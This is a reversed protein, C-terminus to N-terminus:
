QRATCGSYALQEAANLGKATLAVSGHRATAPFIAYDFGSVPQDFDLSIFGLEALDNVAVPDPAFDDPGALLIADVAEDYAAPLWAYTMLLDLFAGEFATLEPLPATHGHCGTCSSCGTCGGHCSPCPVEDPNGNESAKNSLGVALPAPGGGRCPAGTYPSSAGYAVSPNHPPLSKATSEDELPLSKATAEDELPLSEANNKKM